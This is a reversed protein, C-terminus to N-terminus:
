LNRPRVTNYFEYPEKLDESYAGAITGSINIVVVRIDALITTTNGDEDLYSFTLDSITGDETLAESAWTSGGDNSWHYVLRENAADFSYCVNERFDGCDGDSGPTGSSNEYYDYAIAISNADTDDYDNGNDVFGATSASDLPDLGAMRIDRTMMEMVARIGQQTSAAKELITNTKNTSIFFQGVVLLVVSSIAIAVLLEVLSFGKSKERSFNECRTQM